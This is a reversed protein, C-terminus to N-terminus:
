IFKALLETRSNVEMKIYINKIHHNVTHYSIGVADSIQKYSFGKKALEVIEAERKTLEACNEKNKKVATKHIQKLLSAVMRNNMAYGHTETQKISLLLENMTFPKRLFGRAGLSFSKLILQENLDGTIVIIETKPFLKTIEGMEDLGNKGKLHIDLLLYNPEISIKIKKLVEIEGTSFAITFEGSLELFKVINARLYDNDELIGVTRM